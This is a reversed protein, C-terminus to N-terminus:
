GPHETSADTDMYDPVLSSWMLNKFLGSMIIIFVRVVMAVMLIMVVIVTMVIMEIMEIIVFMVDFKVLVVKLNTTSSLM